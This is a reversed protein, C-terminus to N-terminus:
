QIVEDARQLLSPPIRLGLAKATKLNIILEFRTPEEIPLDAPKTGKFIKDVYDALRRYLDVYNPAYSILGGEVVHGRLAFMAPYRGKTTLDGIRKREAYLMPEPFVILAEARAKGIVAFAAEIEQPARADVRLVRVRLTQAASQTARWFIEHTPNTPDALVAIRSVKPMAEKLLELRKRSLESGSVTLGTINGGPQALSTVLGTEVVDSAAAMVIPITKTAQKAAMAPQTSPVVIVDINLRVLEAALAPLPEVPGESSRYEISLNKGEVYGLERLRQLFAGWIPDSGPQRPRPSTNLSGIRWVKGAQQAEAELPAALLVAGTGALFTRRDM